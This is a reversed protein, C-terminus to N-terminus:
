STEVVSGPAARVVRLWEKLFTVVSACDPLHAAALTPRQSGNVLVGFGCDQVVEFADEDTADDGVFVALTGFPARSVLSLVATGKDRGYVRLEVGGDSHQRLIKGSEVVAQWLEWAQDGLERARTATLGRTHLVLGARKRELLEGLGEAEAAREAKELREVLEPAVPHQIVMGDPLRMEWGHEGVFTVPLQGLLREMEAVPRGSVIAVQMGPMAAIARLLNLSHPLPAALERAVHFPALTGDYDLMLLRHHALSVLRWLRRPVGTLPNPKPTGRESTPM